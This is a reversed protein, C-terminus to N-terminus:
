LLKANSLENILLVLCCSNCANFEAKLHVKSTKKGSIARDGDHSAITFWNRSPIHNLQVANWWLASLHHLWWPWPWWWLTPLHHPWWNIPLNGDRWRGLMSWAWLLKEFQNFALRIKFLHLKISAVLTVDHNYTYLFKAYVFLTHYVTLLCKPRLDLHCFWVYPMSMYETATSKVSLSSPFTSMRPKHIKLFCFNSLSAHYHVGRVLIRYM